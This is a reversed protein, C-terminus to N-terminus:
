EINPSPNYILFTCCLLELLEYNQEMTCTLSKKVLAAPGPCNKLLLDFGRSNLGVLLALQRDNCQWFPLCFKNVCVIVILFTMRQFKSIVNLKFM